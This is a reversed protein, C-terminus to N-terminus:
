KDYRAILLCWDAALMLLYFSFHPLANECAATVMAMKNGPPLRALAKHELDRRIEGGYFVLQTRGENNM